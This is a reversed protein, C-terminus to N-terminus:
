RLNNYFCLGETNVVTVTLDHIPQFVSHLLFANKDRIRDSWFLQTWCLNIPAFLTSASAGIFGSVETHAGGPSDGPATM